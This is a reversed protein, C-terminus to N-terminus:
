LIYHIISCNFLPEFCMLPDMEQSQRFLNDNPIILLNDSVYSEYDYDRTEMRVIESVSHRSSGPEGLFSLLHFKYCHYFMM